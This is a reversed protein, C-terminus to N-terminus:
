LSEGLFKKLIEKLAEKVNEEKVNGGIEDEIEDIRDNAKGVDRELDKFDYRDIIDLDEIASEIMEEVRSEDVFSTEDDLYQQIKEDIKEELAEILYGPTSLGVVLANIDEERKELIKVKEELDKLKNVVELFLNCNDM